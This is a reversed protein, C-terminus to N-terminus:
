RFVLVVGAAAALSACLYGVWRLRTARRDFALEAPSSRHFTTIQYPPETGGAALGLISAVILAMIATVIWAM